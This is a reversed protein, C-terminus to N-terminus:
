SRVGAQKRGSVPAATWGAVTAMADSVLGRVLGALAAVWVVQGALFLLIGLSSLRVWHMSAKVTDMYAATNGSLQLGQVLGGLLLSVALIALGTLTLMGHLGVLGAAPRRGVSRSLLEPIVAFAALVLSGVWLWDQGQQAWTLRVVSSVGRFSGLLGVVGAAVWAVAAGTVCLGSPTSTLSKLGGEATKWWNLGIAMVAIMTLFQGALGVSVVWRPFPDGHATVAWPGFFALSWFGILSLQRSALPRQLLSPLLHLVVGVVLGGLWLRTTGNVFWRQVLVQVVGRSGEGALMSLAVSGFWVFSLLSLLVFWASPYVTSSSRMAFTIWGAVGFLAAGMVLCAMAGAPMELLERGTSEGALIGVLGALVGLNWFVGGAMVLGPAQLRQRCSRALVWLGSLVGAQGAFGYWLVDWGAPAVRGYTLWAKGSMMGPGHLKVSAILLLLSGLLLWFSAKAVLFLAPWRFSADIDGPAPGIPEAPAASHPVASTTM